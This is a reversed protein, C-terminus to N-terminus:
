PLAADRSLEQIGAQPREREAAEGAAEPATGGAPGRAQESGLGGPAPGFGEVHGAHPPGRQRDNGPRRDGAPLRLLDTGRLEIGGADAQATRSRGPQASIRSLPGRDAAAAASRDASARPHGEVRRLDQSRRAQTGTPNRSGGEQPLRRGHRHHQRDLELSQGRDGAAPGRAEYNEIFRRAPANRDGSRDGSNNSEAAMVVAAACVTLGFVLSSLSMRSGKEKRTCPHSVTWNILVVRCPSPPSPFASPPPRFPRFPPFPGRPEDGRHTLGGM